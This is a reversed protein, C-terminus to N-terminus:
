SRIEVLFKLRYVRWICVLKVSFPIKKDKCKYIIWHVLLMRAMRFYCWYSSIELILFKLSLITRLLAKSTSRPDEFSVLVMFYKWEMEWYISSSLCTRSSNLSSISYTRKLNESMLRAVNFHSCRKHNNTMQCRKNWLPQVPLIWHRRHFSFRQFLM